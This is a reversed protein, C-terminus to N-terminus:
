RANRGLKSLAPGSFDVLLAISTDGKRLFGHGRRTQVVWAHPPRADGDKQWRMRYEFDYPEQPPPLNEPVWYAVINDSTRGAGPVAGAGGARRGV